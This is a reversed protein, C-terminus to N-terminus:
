VYVQGPKSLFRFIAALILVLGIVAIITAAREQSPGEIVPNPPSPMPQKPELPATPITPTLLPTSPHSPQPIPKPSPVQTPTTPQPIPKPPPVQTPAPIPEPPPVQTPAPIPEPTPVQTPSPIPEPTPIPVTPITPVQPEPFPEPPEQTPTTPESTPIPEPQPVHSPQPQPELSLYSEVENTTEIDFSDLIAGSSTKFYCHGKRKDGNLNLKCVLAGFETLNPACWASGWWENLEKGETCARIGVGAVGTVTVFTQNPGISINGETFSPASPQFDTILKSRCYSHEHGNIIMAGKKRCNNYANWGVEDGKDGLQLIHQNKHWICARWIGGYSSFAQHIFESDSRGPWPDSVGYGTIIFTFGKFSCINGRGVDGWCKAGFREYRNKIV